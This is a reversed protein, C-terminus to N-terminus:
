PCLHGQAQEAVRDKRCADGTDDRQLVLGPGATIRAGQRDDNRLPLPDLYLPNRPTAAAARKLGDTGDLDVVFCKKAVNVGNVTEHWDLRLVKAWRTFWRDAWLADRPSFQGNNIVELLLIRIYQQEPTTAMEHIDDVKGSGISHMAIGRMHAFGYTEHIEKWQGPIRKKFRIFRLLFEIQRHHFLKVVIFHAHALWFPDASEQAQRLLQEYTQYFKKSLRLASVWDRLDFSRLQADGDVYRNLLRNCIRQAHVELTRLAELQAPGPHDSELIRSIEDCATKQASIPDQVQLSHSLGDAAKEPRLPDPLHAAVPPASDATHLHPM